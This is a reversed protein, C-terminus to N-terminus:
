TRAEQSGPGAHAHGGGARSVRLRGERCGLELAAGSLELARCADARVRGEDAVPVIVALVVTVLGVATFPQRGVGGQGERPNPPKTVAGLALSSLQPRWRRELSSGQQELGSGAREWQPPPGGQRPRGDVM